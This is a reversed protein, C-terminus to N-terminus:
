WESYMNCILVEQAGGINYTRYIAQNGKYHAMKSSTTEFNDTIFNMM